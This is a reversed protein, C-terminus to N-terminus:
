SCGRACWRPCRIAPCASCARRRGATRVDAAQRAADRDELVVLGHRAAEAGPRGPRPRRGVRRRHHRHRRRGGRPRVASGPERAHRPRHRHVRVQAGAAEACRPVGLHNSSIIQGPGPRGGPSVLEDGTSIVAVRPRQHVRLTGHGMAAALSVERPGLRRGAGLLVDGTRFDFGMTRVHGHDPTGEGVTVKAGDRASKDQTTNEQIVVADAGAPLPAGTFIRVAQGPGCRGVSPIGAAAEGIVALTAPLKAVDGARVAYGDMASADFPPQTLLAALPEALTRRHAAEIAVAEAPMPAVGDLIRALAEDVSLPAPM